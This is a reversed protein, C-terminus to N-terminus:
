FHGKASMRFQKLHKKLSKEDHLIAYEGTMGCFHLFFVEGAYNDRIAALNSGFGLERSAHVFAIRLADDHTRKTCEESEYIPEVDDLLYADGDESRNIIAVYITKTM